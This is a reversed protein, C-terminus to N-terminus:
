INIRIEYNITIKDGLIYKKDILDELRKKVTNEIKYKIEEYCKDIMEKTITVNQNEEIKKIDDTGYYRILEDRQNSFHNIIPEPSSSFTHVLPYPEIIIVKFKIIDKIEITVLKGYELQRNYSFDGTLENKENLKLYITKILPNKCILKNDKYEFEIKEM